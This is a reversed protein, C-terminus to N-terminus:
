RNRYRKGKFFEGRDRPEVKRFPLTKREGLIEYDLANPDDPTTFYRVPSVVKPMDDAHFEWVYDGDVGFPEKGFLQGTRLRSFGMINGQEDVNYTDTWPKNQYLQPIVFDGKQYEICEIWGSKDYTRKENPIVFFSIVSPPGYAGTGYRSCVMIDLRNRIQQRDIVIEAYGLNPRLDSWRGEYPNISPRYGQSITTWAFSVNEDRVPWSTAAFRFKRNREPARLVIGIGYPHEFTIEPRPDPYDRLPVARRIPFTEFSEFVPAISTMLPLARETLNQAVKGIATLDFDRERWVAPHARPSLYAAANTVGPRSCRFLWQLTPGMIGARLILAQVNPQLANTACAIAADARQRDTAAPGAVLQFPMNAPLFDRASRSNSDDWEAVDVSVVPLTNNTYASFVRAAADADAVNVVAQSAM